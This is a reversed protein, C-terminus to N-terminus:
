GEGHENEDIAMIPRLFRRRRLEQGIQGLAQGGPSPLHRDDGAARGFGLAPFNTASDANFPDAAPPPASIMQGRFDQLPGNKEEGGKPSEPAQVPRAVYDDGEGIRRHDAGSGPPDGPDAAGAAALPNLIDVRLDRDGQGPMPRQPQQLRGAVSSPPIRGGADGQAMVHGPNNGGRTHVPLSNMDHGVPRWRAQLRWHLFRDRGQALGPSQRAFEDDGVGSIEAPRVIELRHHRHGRNQRVLGSDNKRKTPPPACRRASSAFAARPRM